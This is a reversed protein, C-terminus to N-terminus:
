AYPEQTQLYALSSNLPESGQEGEKTKGSKRPAIATSIKSYHFSSEAHATQNWSLVDMMVLISSLVLLQVSVSVNKQIALAHKLGLM